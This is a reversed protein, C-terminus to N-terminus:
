CQIHQLLNSTAQLVYLTSTGTVKGVFLTCTRVKRRRSMRRGITARRLHIEIRIGDRLSYDVSLVQCGSDSKNFEGYPPNGLTKKQMHSPTFVCCAYWTPDINLQLIYTLRGMRCKGTANGYVDTTLKAGFPSTAASFGISKSHGPPPWSPRITCFLFIIDKLM